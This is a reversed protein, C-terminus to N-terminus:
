LHENMKAVFVVVLVVVVVVTLENKEYFSRCWNNVFLLYWLVLWEKQEWYM